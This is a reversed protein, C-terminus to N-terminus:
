GYKPMGEIQRSLNPYWGLLDKTLFHAVEFDDVLTYARKMRMLLKSRTENPSSTPM